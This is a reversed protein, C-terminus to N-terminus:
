YGPNQQSRIVSNSLIEVRPIPLTMKYSNPELSCAGSSACDEQTRAIGQQAKVGLRKVDLYRQGEFAFEIRRENLIAKWASVATSITPMSAPEQTPIPSSSSIRNKRINYIISEVSSFDNAANQSQYNGKAARAEALALLVDSYRYVFIDSQLPRQTRGPYKGILRRKLTWDSLNSLSMKYRSDIREVNYAEGTRDPDLKDLENYLSGGLEFYVGGDMTPRSDYWAGLVGSTQNETRKLRFIIEPNNDINTQETLGDLWFVNEFQTSSLSYNGSAIVKEASTIVKDYEGTMSYLKVLLTEIFGKTVYINSNTPNNNSMTSSEYVSKAIDLDDEIFKVIEAVTSRGIMREYENTQIFDLKMISLGGPNTYDPTFYSFLKLNCLARIAHIEAKSSLLENKETETTAEEILQDVRGLMRNSRNIINYYAEWIGAAFSNGSEMLFTYSGDNLGQGAAAFGIKCDDTFISGFQVESEGPLSAYLGSIGRIVDKNNRFVQSEDTVYGPQNIDYADQCSSVIAGLILLSIVIKRM